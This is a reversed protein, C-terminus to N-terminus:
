DAYYRAVPQVVLRDLNLGQCHRFSKEELWQTWVLEPAWGAEQVTPVLSGKGLALVRGPCSASWQGGDLASTSFSYSSYRREGLHRRPMYHYLKKINYTDYRHLILANSLTSHAYIIFSALAQCLPHSIHFINAM